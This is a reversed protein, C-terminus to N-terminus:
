GPQFKLEAGIAMAIIVLALEGRPFPLAGALFTVRYGTKGPRFKRELLMLSGIIRQGSAMKRNGAVGAVVFLRNRPPRFRGTEFEIAKAALGAVFIWVQACDIRIQGCPSAFVAMQDVAPFSRAEIM